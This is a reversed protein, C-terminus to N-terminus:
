RDARRLLAGPVPGQQRPRPHSGLRATGQRRGPDAAGGLQLVHAADAQHVALLSGPRQPLLDDRHRRARRARRPPQFIEEATSFTPGTPGLLAAMLEAQTAGRRGQPRAVLSYCFLATAMRVAPHPQDADVRHETLRQDIEVARGADGASTTIDTTAVARYGQIARDNGLLLGSSLVAELARTLPIDGVGILSPVWRGARAENMWNLATLAFIAVTSRVRQFGQVQSWERQVLAVLDPHFPYSDAVRDALGMLRSGGLKAFVKDVWAPDADTVAVLEDALLQAPIQQSPAEFLRRRLIGAFDQSETVPVTTGNRVLRAAIYDRFGSAAPTYGREDIESNIMVVVFVVRPVDDCADMLANLFAQETPMTDVWKADSLAMAYDMLEDLLILVPQGLSALARQLTAKNPGQAVLADWQDQDGDLLAWLFREFLNTAPGFNESPAGPSFTDACLPVVRTGRLDVHSGAAEAEGRVLQGLETAFFAEPNAAMHYCGVLAHSKGGGM